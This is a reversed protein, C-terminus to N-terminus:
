IIQQNSKNKYVTFYQVNYDSSFREASHLAKKQQNIVPELTFTYFEELIVSSKQHLILIAILSLTYKELTIWVKDFPIYYQRRQYDNLGKKCKYM